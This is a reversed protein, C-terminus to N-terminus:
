GNSFAIPVPSADISAIASQGSVIEIFREIREAKKIERDRMKQKRKMYKYIFGFCNKSFIQFVAFPEACTLFTFHCVCRVHILINLIRREVEYSLSSLREKEKQIIFQVDILQLWNGLVRSFILHMEGNTTKDDNSFISYKTSCSIYVFLHRFCWYLHIAFLNFTECIKNRKWKDEIQGIFNMSTEDKIRSFKWSKRTNIMEGTTQTTTEMINPWLSWAIPWCKPSIKKAHQKTKMTTLENRLTEVLEWTGLAASM